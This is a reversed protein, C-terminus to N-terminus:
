NIEALERREKEADVKKGLNNEKDKFEKGYQTMTSADCNYPAGTLKKKEKEVNDKFTTHRKCEDSIIKIFGFIMFLGTTVFGLIMGILYMGEFEEEPGYSDPGMNFVDTYYKISRSDEKDGNNTSRIRYSSPAITGELKGESADASM